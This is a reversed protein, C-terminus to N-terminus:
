KSLSQSVKTGGELVPFNIEDASLSCTLSGLSLTMTVWYKMLDSHFHFIMM